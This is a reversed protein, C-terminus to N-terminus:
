GALFAFVSRFVRIVLPQRALDAQRAAEAKAAAAKAAADAKAKVAAAQAKAAADQAAKREAAAKAEAAKREAAAKAQAAAAARQKAHLQNLFAIRNKQKIRTRRLNEKIAFSPTLLQGNGANTTVLPAALGAEPAYINHGGTYRYPHYDAATPSDYPYSVVRKIAKHPTGAQELVVYASHQKNAWGDFIVVHRVTNLIIDGPQLDEKAIPRAVEPLSWTVYSSDLGWAYSVFGSCDTRYDDRWAGQDYPVGKAVWRAARGMVAQRNFYSPAQATAAHAASAGVLPQAIAVAVIAATVFSRAIRHTRSIL